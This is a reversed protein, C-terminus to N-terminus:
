ANVNAPVSHPDSQLAEKFQIRGESLCSPPSLERVELYPGKQVAYAPSPLALSPAQLGYPLAPPAGPQAHPGQDVCSQQLSM